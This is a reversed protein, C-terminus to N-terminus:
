HSLGFDSLATRNGVLTTWRREPAEPLHHWGGPTLREVVDAVYDPVIVLPTEENPRHHEIFLALGRDAGRAFHIVARLSQPM